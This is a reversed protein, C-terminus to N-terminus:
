GSPLSNPRSMGRDLRRTASRRSNTIRRSRSRPRAERLRHASQARDGADAVRRRQQRIRERNPEIGRACREDFSRCATPWSSSRSSCTTCSSRSTSTSSSTARRARRDRGRHRQRVGAGRGDDAGRVADPQDQGAHDVLGARERSDHDRRLGRAARARYLRVDNAIKMLSAASRACRPAPTSWRTTRPCRPSSTPRPRSRSAPRRRSTSRRRARRLAPARQHGTGVATGGLALPHLADRAHM